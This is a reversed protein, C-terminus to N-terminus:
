GTNRLGASIGNITGAIARNIEDTDEGARKRRLLDVQILSMPDVYPNRLRISRALVQNNELLEKQQTIALVASMTRQFEAEIKSFVRERMAPDPVLSAYLSAIGLDAKAMAMEVNRVLDIFLPFEAMMDRLLKLGDTHRQTYQEIAHGVGFWGPVLLRSQTWGFVWPIARLDAFSRKGSRRAPRSGIRAHELEGVPTALQFYEFVEPDGIIQERYFHFATESLEDFAKEWEPLLVGSQHGNPDLANPRALADLSAAIMLELNREALVVDSYKWNLVEGQETIRIQGEFAGMPQAYISRHTPGGGRGVTGGRGHFLRLKIGCERAVEHLARHARFIEWTSTLMGGDKNSDSYGLMIEQTNNWSALLNRYEPLNWLKRCVQPANRLDEISEFLPVPMLGPDSGNGAVEVGGLRALWLVGVIDEIGSAGSIVYQRVAEPSCGRKIEAVARLTNIVDASERSLTHPVTVSGACWASAEELAKKHLRAHQRIDLTHLHLGFTRVLLVLPDVLTRALRLGQNAALSRRLILLDDLFEQANCYAPLTGLAAELSDTDQPEKGATRLLRAHVCVMFRRYMEYEFRAGFVQQTGTRLESLYGYLRQSLEESIPLQQASTTLLDIILQVQKEYYALLRTRAARIAELTVQPTVFPNGDRDGGIWSGFGLLLPLDSIDVDMGYVSALAASVEEYLKPLTAFISVDYYDLGMKIEDNVTPRRSRVEDTQWLATIEALLEEELRAIEEDPLPIRDLQELFEGIRRRKFLVSRRAVETPHATFVPVIFIRRLWDLAENATIGVRKMEQLTGRLSGRQVEAGGSLQLSLRRRKRHNTEALNILEFYFAFARSLQYAREVSVEAISRVSHQMLKEAESANGAAQAERRRIATTRLDEVKEYLEEGAQERLVEGLLMGLSRVDRRLPVEKLDGSRAELEALRQPWSEPKWLLPM